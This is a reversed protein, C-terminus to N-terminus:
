QRVAQIIRISAPTASPNSVLIATINKVDLTNIGGPRLTFPTGGADNFKVTMEISAPAVIMIFDVYSNIMPIVQDVQGAQIQAETDSAVNNPLSVSATIDADTIINNNDDIRQLALEYNISGMPLEEPTPQTQGWIFNFTQVISAVSAVLQALESSVFQPTNAGTTKCLWLAVSDGPNMDPLTLPNGRTPVTYSVVTGDSDSSTGIGISVVERSTAQLLWLSPDPAPADGTNSLFVKEYIVQGPVLSQWPVDPFLNNSGTTPVQQGGIVGGSSGPLSSQFLVLNYSM